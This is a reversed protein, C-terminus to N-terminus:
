QDVTLYKKQYAISILHTVNKALFYTKMGTVKKEVTRSSLFMAKAIEKCTAGGALLRLLEIDRCVVTKM